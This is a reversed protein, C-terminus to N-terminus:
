GEVEYSFGHAEAVDILLHLCGAPLGHCYYPYGPPEFSSYHSRYYKQAADSHPIVDWGRHDTEASKPALRITIDPM